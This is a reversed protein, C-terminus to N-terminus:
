VRNVSVSRESSFVPGGPNKLFPHFEGSFGPLPPFAAPVCSDCFPSLPSSLANQACLRRKTKKGGVSDDSCLPGRKPFRADGNQLEAFEPSELPVLLLVRRQPARVGPAPCQSRSKVLDARGM